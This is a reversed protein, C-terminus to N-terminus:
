SLVMIERLRAAARENTFHEEVRVRGARGMRRSQDPDDLLALMVAAMGETDHEQVLYGTEGHIVTESFGNHDTAVVPIGSAMAEILSIGFSEMDGNHATVSHQVFLAAHKLLSKVYEPSQAGHIRVNEGIGLRKIEAVCMAHLPGDGVIDLTCDPYRRLVSAFARITLHPAKKEVLRGIAILRGSERTSEEFNKPDIGHPSVYLKDDPCGLKRLRDALFGSPVIIGTADRFLQRYHRRWRSKRALKTADSGHFHVYLPIQERKCALRMRSGNQGFEALVVTVRHLKLFNRVRREGLGRLSPDLFPRLILNLFHTFRDGFHRPTGASRIESLVPVALNEAGSGDDCLVVTRGPAIDRVHARIFTESPANLSNAVIALTM